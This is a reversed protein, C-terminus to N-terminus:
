PGHRQTIMTLEFVHSPKQLRTYAVLRPATSNQVQVPVVTEKAELASPLVIARLFEPDQLVFISRRTSSDYGIYLKKYETEFFWFSHLVPLLCALARIESLIETTTKANLIASVDLAKQLGDGSSENESSM